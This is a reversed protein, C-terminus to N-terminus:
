DLTHKFRNYEWQYQEPHQRILKTLADNMAQVSVELDKNLLAESIDMLEVAFGKGIGLRKAWGLLIQPVPADKNTAHTSSVPQLHKALQSVLTMTYAPQGFFISRVASKPLPTQDPLILISQQNKLAKTLLRLGKSEASALAMGARKRGDIILRNMAAQKAPKYMATLPTQTALWAAFLEWNGYHPTIIIRSVPADLLAQGQVSKIRQRNRQPNACWQPGMEMLVMGTHRLSAKTLTNLAHTNLTPFCRQLNKRTHTRVSNPTYYLVTGLLWGLCQCLRLPLWGLLRLVMVSAAEKMVLRYWVKRINTTALFSAIM